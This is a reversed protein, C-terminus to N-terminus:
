ASVRKRNLIYMFVNSFFMVALMQSLTIGRDPSEGLTPQCEVANTYVITNGGISLVADPSDSVTYYIYNSSVGTTRAFQVHVCDDGFTVVSGSVDAKKSIYLSAQYTDDSSTRFGAYKYDSSLGNVIRDMLDLVQSNMTGTVSSSSEGLLVVSQELLALIETDGDDSVLDSGSITIDDAPVEQVESVADAGSVSVGSDVPLIDNENNSEDVIEEGVIENEQIEEPLEEETESEFLDNSPEEISTETVVMQGTSPDAAFLTVALFLPAFNM